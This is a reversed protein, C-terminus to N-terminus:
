NLSKKNFEKIRYMISFIFGISMITVGIWILSVFPKLSAEVTLIQKPVTIQSDSKNIQLQIQGM